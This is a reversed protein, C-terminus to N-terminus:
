SAKRQAAVEDSRFVLLMPCGSAQQLLEEFRRKVDMQDTVGLILMHSNQQSLERQLLSVTEGYHLETRMELGHVAQAESRADLLERMGEPKSSETEAEPLINLYTAEAPVHRLVSAAVALTARRVEEGTWHILVRTVSMYQEPLILVECAGRQLLWQLQSVVDKGAAIAAVGALGMRM